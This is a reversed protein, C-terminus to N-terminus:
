GKGVPENLVRAGPSNVPSSLATSELGEAAFAAQMAEAGATAASEAHFWAFVSPGSGSISCGLAGQALAAAKVAKFGPISGARQPEILLDKLCAAIVDVNKEYCAAVFAALNASQAVVLERTFGRKLSERANRTEIQIKPHIVACRLRNPAPIPLPTRHGYPGVLTLGGLLSAAVNDGHESRSAAFEGALAFPYLDAAPLPIKLMKNVAVVAAVASAASGGLGSGLPIGKDLHIEFGGALELAQVMAAVASLATNDAVAEPLESLMGSVGALRIGPEDSRVVTVTDGAGQLAQGLVDFGVAVNGVSAPAFATVERTNGLAVSDKSAKSQSM